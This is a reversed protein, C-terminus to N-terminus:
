RVFAFAGGTAAVFGMAGVYFGREVLGFVRRGEPVIRTLVVLVLSILMVISWTTSANRLGSWAPAAQLLRSVRWGADAISFFAVLALLGHTRGTSTRASGPADMPYWSIVARSVAAVLLLAVIVDAARGRWAVAAAAGAGALAVAMALTQVRYGVRRDTIGYQSVACRIPNLGTHVVHLWTLAGLQVAIGALTVFGLTHTLAGPHYSFTAAM